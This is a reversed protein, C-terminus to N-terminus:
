LSHFKGGTKQYLTQQWHRYEGMFTKTQQYKSRLRSLRTRVTVPSLRLEVAAKELLGNREGRDILEQLKELLLMEKHTFGAKHM